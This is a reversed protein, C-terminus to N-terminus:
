EDVIGEGDDSELTDYAVGGGGDAVVPVGGDAVVGEGEVDVARGRGDVAAVGGGRM